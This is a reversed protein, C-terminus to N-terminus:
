AWVRQSAAAAPAVGCADVRQRAASSTVVSVYAVIVTTLTISLALRVMLMSRYGHIKIGLLSPDHGM